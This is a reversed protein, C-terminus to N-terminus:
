KLPHAISVAIVASITMLRSTNDMRITDSREREACAVKESDSRWICSPISSRDLVLMVGM